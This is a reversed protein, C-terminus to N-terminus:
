DSNKCNVIDLSFTPVKERLEMFQEFFSRKFLFDHGFIFPNLKDSWWCTPCWVIQRKDPHYYSIIKKSCSDCDRYYFVRENRIALRRQSRCDRCFTPPSVKIKEYFGFDDPEITFNKKCNQCIKTRAEM